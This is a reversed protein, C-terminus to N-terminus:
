RDGMIQSLTEEPRHRDSRLRASEPRQHGPTRGPQFLRRQQLGRPPTRTIRRGPGPSSPWGPGPDKEFAEAAYFLEMVVRITLANKIEPRNVPTINVVGSDDRQYLIDAFANPTM